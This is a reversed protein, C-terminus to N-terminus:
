NHLFRANNIMSCNIFSCVRYWKVEEGKEKANKIGANYFHTSAFFHSPFRSRLIDFYSNLVEDNMWTNQGALIGQEKVGIKGQNEIKNNMRLQNEFEQWKDNFIVTGDSLEDVFNRRPEWTEDGTSWKTRWEFQKSSLNWRREVIQDIVYEQSPTPKRQQVRPCTTPPTQTIQKRPKIIRGRSSIQQQSALQQSQQSSVPEIEQSPVSNQVCTKAAQPLNPAKKRISPLSRLAARQKAEEIKSRKQFTNEM